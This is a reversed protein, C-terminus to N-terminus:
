PTTTSGRKQSHVPCGSKLFFTNKNIEDLKRTKVKRSVPFTHALADVTKVEGM